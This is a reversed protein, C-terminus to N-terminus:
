DSQEKWSSLKTRLLDEYEHPLFNDESWKQYVNNGLTNLSNEDLNLQKEVQILFTPVDLGEDKYKQIALGVALRSEEETGVCEFPKHNGLGVLDTVYKQIPLTEFFDSGFIELMKAHPIFPSLSLYVFACKACTGCWSNKERNVNCSRFSSFYQPMQSFLKSIQLDYLPRLFSFYEIDDTLFKKAYERFKKEFQPSKSYQHNIELGHFTLNGVEASRENSVIIERFNHLAATLISLFALYASFPTHGNLYGQSNLEILKPDITRKIEVKDSYGATDAVRDAAPIPSLMLAAKRTPLQKLIELTVASDKGGGVLVLDGDVEFNQAPLIPKEQNPIISILDPQTPDIDNKYFFEGLGNIFLDKWWAIQNDTLNGAAIVFEKPCALKWYSISEVLGLHFVLNELKEKNITQFTPIIIKPNFDINPELRFHFTIELESGTQEFEYSQYVLRPHKERLQQFTM